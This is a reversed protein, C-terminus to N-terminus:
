SVGGAYARIYKNGITLEDETQITYRVSEGVLTGDGSIPVGTAPISLWTADSSYEWGTQDVASQYTAAVTAFDAVTSLEIKFHADSNGAKMDPIIMVIQPTTNKDFFGDTPTTIIPADPANDINIQNIGSDMIDGILSPRDYARLKIWVNGKYDIGLDTVTNWLFDHATGTPSTTLNNKGDSTGGADTMESFTGTQGTTCYLPKLSAAGSREDTLTYNIIVDGWYDTTTLGEGLLSVISVKCNGSTVEFSKSASVDGYTVTKASTKTDGLSFATDTL